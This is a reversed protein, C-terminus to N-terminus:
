PQVEGPVPRTAIQPTGDPEMALVLRRLQNLSPLSALRRKRHLVGQALEFRIRQEDVAPVADAEPSTRRPPYLPLIEIEDPLAAPGLSDVLQTAVAEKRPPPEAGCFLLLWFRPGQSHNLHVLVAALVGKCEAALALTDAAPFPLGERRPVASGGCVYGTDTQTLSLDVAPIEPGAVPVAVAGPLIRRPSGANVELIPQFRGTGDLAPVDMTGAQLLKFRRGAVPAVEQHFAVPRPPSALLTGGLAGDYVVNACAAGRLARHSYLQRWSEAKTRASPDRLLLAARPPPRGPQALLECLEESVVLTRLSPWAVRGAHVEDLTVHAFAAGSLLTTLVLTPQYRPLAAGPAALVDGPRLAFSLLGDRLADRFLSGARVPLLHSEQTALSPCLRLCVASAAYCHAKPLPASPGGATPEPLCRRSFSGRLLHHHRITYIRADEILAVKREVWLPGQPLVPIACLGQRFAALLAVVLDLGFPLLLVLPDGPALGQSVFHAALSQARAHLAAYTQPGAADYWATKGRGRAGLHRSVLDQYLAIRNGSDSFFPPQTATVYTWVAEAFSEPQDWSEQLWQPTLPAPQGTLGGYWASLLPQLEAAM